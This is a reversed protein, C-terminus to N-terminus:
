QVYYFSPASCELIEMDDYMEEHNKRYEKAQEKDHFFLFNRDYIDGNRRMVLIFM